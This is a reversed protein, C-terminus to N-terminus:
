CKNDGQTEKWRNLADNWEKKRESEVRDVYEILAKKRITRAYEELSIKREKLELISMM